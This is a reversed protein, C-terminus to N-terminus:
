APQRDRPYIMVHVPEVDEPLWETRYRGVELWGRRRYLNLPELHHPVVDLVPAGGDRLAEETATRLLASGIGRGALRRDAFLVSICRLMEVPVGHADSWMRGLEDDQVRQLAVHGAVAGDVEAVWAAMEGDRRIFQEVPMSPPWHFPYETEPQQRQLIDILAPLDDDRRSRITVETM